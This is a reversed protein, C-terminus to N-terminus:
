FKITELMIKIADTFGIKYIKQSQYSHEINIDDLYTEIKEKFDEYNLNSNEIIKLIDNLKISNNKLKTLENKDKPTITYLQESKMNFIDDIFSKLKM